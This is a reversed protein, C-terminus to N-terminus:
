GAGDVVDFNGVLQCIWIHLLSHILLCNWRWILLLLKRLFLLVVHSFCFSIRKLSGIISVILLCNSLDFSVFSLPWRFNEIVLKFVFHLQYVLSLLLFFFISLHLLSLNIQRLVFDSWLINWQSNMENRLRTEAEAPLFEDIVVVTSSVVNLIIGTDPRDEICNHWLHVFIFFSLECERVHLEELHPIISLFAWYLLLQFCKNLVILKFNDITTQTLGILCRWIVFVENVIQHYPM